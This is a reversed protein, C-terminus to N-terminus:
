AAGGKVVSAILRASQGLIDKEDRTLEPTLIREVGKEGIVAPVSLAADRIGYEGDLLVSVSFIRSLNMHVSDALEAIGASPAYYASSRKALEVLLDGASRTESMLAAIREPPLLQPLPVGSVSCYRPLCIMDDSHRGIVLASVIEMSVGLERAILARLRMSDLIGGLGLVRTRPMGSRLAFLATLSDVPETAMVVVSDPALRAVDAALTRVLPANEHFLDERRMGPSRIAGVAIVVMQSGQIDALSDSGVLSNRYRRIPAAEMIDLAKGRSLGQKIDVLLVDTVGKEAVFFATNAGVNGSGVISVRAM